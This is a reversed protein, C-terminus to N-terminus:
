DSNGLLDLDSIAMLTVCHPWAFIDDAAWAVLEPMSFIASYGIFARADDIAEAAEVRSLVRRALSAADPLEHASMICAPRNIELSTRAIAM